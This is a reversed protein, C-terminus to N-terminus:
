PKLDMIVPLILLLLIELILICMGAMALKHTKFRGVVDKFYSSRKMFM